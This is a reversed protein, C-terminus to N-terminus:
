LCNDSVSYARRRITRADCEYMDRWWGLVADCRIRYEVGVLPLHPLNEAEIGAHAFDGLSVLARVRAEAVSPAAVIGLGRREIFGAIRPHPQAVLGFPTQSVVLRDDGVLRIPRRRTSAGMLALALRSKGSKSPGVILLAGGRIAVATAHITLRPPSKADSPM